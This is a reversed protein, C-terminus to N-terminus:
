RLLTKFFFRLCEKEGENEHEVRGKEKNNQEAELNIAVRKSPMVFGNVFFRKVAKSCKECCCLGNAWIWLCLFLKGM